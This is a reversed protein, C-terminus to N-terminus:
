GTQEVKRITSYLMITGLNLEKCFSSTPCVFRFIRNLICLVFIDVIHFLDVSSFCKLSFNTVM